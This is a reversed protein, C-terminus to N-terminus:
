LMLRDAGHQSLLVRPLPPADVAPQVDSRAIDLFEAVTITGLNLSQVSGDLGVLTEVVTGMLDIDCHFERVVV